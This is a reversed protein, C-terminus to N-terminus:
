VVSLKFILEKLLEYNDKSFSKIRRDYEVCLSAAYKAYGDGQGFSRDRKSLVSIYNKIVFDRMGTMKMISQVTEGNKTLRDVTCMDMVADSIRGFLTLAKDYKKSSQGAASKASGKRLYGSAKDTSNKYVNFAALSSAYNGALAFRAIDYIQAQVSKKCVKEVDEIEAKQRNEYTLYEICNDIENKLIVMDNGVYSCMYSAVNRDIEIHAKSFHRTVWTVLKPSGAEERVFNVALASEVVTKYIGKFIADQEGAYLWLVIMIGDTKEEIRELFADEDKKAKLVGDLDPGILRVIRYKTASEDGDMSFMDFSEAPETDCATIFDALNFEEGYFTKVNLSADGVAKKLESYYFDKTYEEDGYFVYTGSVDGSKLRDKLLALNAAHEEFLKKKDSSATKAM